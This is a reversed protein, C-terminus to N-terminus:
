SSTLMQKVPVANCYHFFRPLQAFPLTAFVPLYYTRHVTSPAPDRSLLSPGSQALPELTSKTASTGQSITAKEAPQKTVKGKIVPETIPVTEVKEEVAVKAEQEQETTKANGATSNKSAPRITSVEVVPNEVKSVTPASTPQVSDDPKSETTTSESKSEPKSELIAPEPKSETASKSLTPLAEPLAPVPDEFEPKPPSALEEQKPPKKARKKAM